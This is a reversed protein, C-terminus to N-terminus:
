LVMKFCPLLCGIRNCYEYVTNIELCVAHVGQGDDFLVQSSIKLTFVKMGNEFQSVVGPIHSVTLFVQWAPMSFM